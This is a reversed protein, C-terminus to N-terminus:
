EGRGRHRPAPADGGALHREQIRGQREARSERCRASRGQGAGVCKGAGGSEPTKATGSRWQWLNVPNAADGMLFYPKESEGKAPIAVPLQVAVMDEGFGKDAIKQPRRTAPFAGHATTGNSCCRWCGERRLGRARHHHREVAHLLAAQRHIQPLMFLTAAEAEAWRPDDPADPVGRWQAQRGQDRDKEPRVVKETKALTAVYNAVHWREEATMKKKSKPDVFSPMQTGPIGVTIRTFVDKPDNSARFTWPKTLNRPWTRNGADDKLKKSADGKGEDKGHCEACRDLFLKRGAAVSEESTAIQTRLRGAQGAEGRGAGRVDQYLRGPGVMDQESLIDEM